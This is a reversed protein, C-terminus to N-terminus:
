SRTAAFLRNPVLTPSPAQAEQAHTAASLKAGLAAAMGTTMTATTVSKAGNGRGTAVVKDAFMVLCPFALSPLPVDMAALQSAATGVCTGRRLLVPPPADMGMMSTAMMALNRGWGCETVARRLVLSTVTAPGDPSWLVGRAADTTGDSTAM